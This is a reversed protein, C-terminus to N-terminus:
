VLVGDRAGLFRRELRIEEPHTIRDILIICVLSFIGRRKVRQDAISIQALEGLIGNGLGGIAPLGNGGLGIGATGRCLRADVVHLTARLARCEVSRIVRIPLAPRAYRSRTRVRRIATRYTVAQEFVITRLASCRSGARAGSM